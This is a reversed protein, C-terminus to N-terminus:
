RKFTWNESKIVYISEKIYVLTGERLKNLMMGVKLEQILVKM